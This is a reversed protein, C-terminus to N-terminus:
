RLGGAVRITEGTIYGADDSALFVVMPAIDNPQGIRGLPTQAEVTRRFDGQDLGAARVGETEVMGPLIANVRIKRAGLENALM